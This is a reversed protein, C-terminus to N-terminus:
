PPATAGTLAAMAEPHRLAVDITCMARVQVNGREYTGAAYPNVLFDAESWLGIFVQTWDGFIVTGGPVLTTSAVPYGACEQTTDMIMMSDTAAIKQTQMLWSRMTPSMAFANGTANKSDVADITALIDKWKAPATIPVAGINPTSLVGRPEAGTGSGKIAAADIGEALQLAMDNRFLIEIDPSTQLLMNRSAESLSGGHKPTLSVKRYDPDSPTLPSNEAVWAFGSSTKLGPVDLNGQLNGLYQAGLRRVILAARLRDIFQGMVLDTPILNGGPGTAPLTSTVTARAEIEHPQAPTRFIALPVYLGEPQQGRRRACEQSVELERAAGGLKDRLDPVQSAIARLLSYGRLVEAFRPDRDLIAGGDGNRARAAAPGAAAAEMRELEQLREAGSVEANLRCVDAHLARHEAAEAETLDRPPRADTAAQSIARMRGIARARDQQLQQLTKSM